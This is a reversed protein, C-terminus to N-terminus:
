TTSKTLILTNHSSHRHYEITDALAQILCLGWGGEPLATVDPLESGEILVSGPAAIGKDKIRISIAQEIMELEINIENGAEELYAHEVVNNLAEVIMLELQGQLDVPIKHVDCYKYLLDSARRVESFSSDITLKFMDILTHEHSSWM